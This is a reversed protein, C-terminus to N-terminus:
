QESDSQDTTELPMSAGKEESLLQEVRLAQAYAVDYVFHLQPTKRLNLRAALQHRIFPGAHNLADVLVATDPNEGTTVVFVRAHHLDSTMEVGTVDVGHIRDDAVEFCIIECIEERVSEALRERRHNVSGSQHRTRSSQTGLRGM